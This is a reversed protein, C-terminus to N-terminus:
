TTQLKLTTNHNNKFNEILRTICIKLYELRRLRNFYVYGNKFTLRLLPIRKEKWYYLTQDPQTNKAITQLGTKTDDYNLGAIKCAKRLQKDILIPLYEPQDITNKIKSDMKQWIKYINKTVKKKVRKV